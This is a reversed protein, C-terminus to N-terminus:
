AGGALLRRAESPAPLGPTAGWEAVVGAAVLMAVRAADELPLETAMGAAIVGCVSDGAGTSDVVDAGAGAVATVGGAESVLAGAAGRTVVAARPGLARLWEAAEGVDERGSLRLAESENLKVVSAGAVLACIVSVMEEAGPWRNPRLNPDCLVQWGREAAMAVAGMTVEREAEGLLTDSGVVLVGPEGSLAEDLERGAHAAPRDADGYFAFSPEGDASVSVFAHSTWAGPTLVFRDVSVGEAAILDRLWRGWEDDGAGGIMEVRDSFRAAAVAINALSGGQRPVFHDAARLTTVPRECVFDVLAEGLCVIRAGSVPGSSM